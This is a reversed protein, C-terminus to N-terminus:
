YIVFQSIPKAQQQMNLRCYIFCFCANALSAIRLYKSNNLYYFITAFYDCLLPDKYLSVSYSNRNKYVGVFFVIFAKCIGGKKHKNNYKGLVVQM